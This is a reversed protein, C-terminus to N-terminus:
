HSTNTDSKCGCYVRLLDLNLVLVHSVRKFLLSSSLCSTLKGRYLGLVGLESNHEKRLDNIM